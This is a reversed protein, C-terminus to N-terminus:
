NTGNVALSLSQQSSWLLDAMQECNARVYYRLTTEISQHRMLQMLIHAPVRLAWREGFSRRLDHASAYKTKRDIRVVVNALKGVASINRSVQELPEYIEFVRGTRSPREDLAEAFEPAVPCLRNRRGKESEAPIRLMPRRGSFDLWLGDHQEWWLNLAEGLRLGSTWLGRLLWDYESGCLRGCAELLREFEEGTIARGKMAEDRRRPPMSIHPAAPLMNKSVAWNFAARLIALYGRVTEPSLGALSKRYKDVGKVAESLSAPEVAAKFGRLVGQAKDFSSQRCFFLGDDLYGTVFKDWPVELFAAQPTALEREKLAVLKIAARRSTTGARQEHVRGSEDQWRLSLSSRHRNIVCVRIPM